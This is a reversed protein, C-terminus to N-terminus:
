GPFQYHGLFGCLVMLRQSFNDSKCNCYCQRWPMFFYPTFCTILAFHLSLIIIRSAAAVCCHVCICSYCKKPPYADIPVANNRSLNSLRFFASHDAVDCFHILAMYMYLIAPINVNPRSTIWQTVSSGWM